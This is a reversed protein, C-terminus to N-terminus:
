HMKPQIDSISPGSLNIDGHAALLIMAFFLAIGTDLEAQLEEGLLLQDKDKKLYGSRMGKRVITNVQTRPISFRKSLDSASLAETPHLAHIRLVVPLGGRMKWFLNLASLDKFPRWGEVYRSVFFLIFEVVQEDAALPEVLRQHEPLLEAANRYSTRWGTAAYGILDNTSKLVLRKGAQADTDSKLFGILRLYGLLAGARGRSMIGTDAILKKFANVSFGIEGTKPDRKSGLAISFALVALRAREDFVGRRNRARSWRDSLDSAFSRSCRDFQDSSKIARVEDDLM